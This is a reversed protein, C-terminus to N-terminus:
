LLPSNSFDLNPIENLNLVASELKPANVVELSVLGNHDMLFNKVNENDLSFETFLNWSLSLWILNEATSIGKVETLNNSTLSITDLLINKSVNLTELYNADAYM